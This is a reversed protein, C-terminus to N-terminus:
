GFCIFYIFYICCGRLGGAAEAHPPAVLPKAGPGWLYLPLSELPLRGPWVSVWTTSEFSRRSGTVSPRASSERFTTGRVAASWVAVVAPPQRPQGHRAMPPRVWMATEIAIRRGNGSIGMSKTCDGRTRSLHISRFPGSGISAEQGTGTPLLEMTTRRSLRFRYAGGSRRRRGHARRM